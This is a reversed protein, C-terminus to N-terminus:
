NRIGLKRSPDATRELAQRDWNALTAAAEYTSQLFALLTDDPADALRVRDYPLLFERLEQSYFAEDPRVRADAFGAPEPYAYSYFVPYAIPGGGAWFGCSSVEHSYAERAVWDPLNPIGGPHEPAPRGSFRTVAMDLGGWFVHVPSCKGRFRSRFIKLVRDAQVLIRWFRFAYEPEYSCHTEDREFPIADAVENPKTHIRINLGLATLAAMLRAYFTAVSQPELPVRGIRGDSTSITLRHSLFDFEIEFTLTGYPIPSTTLGRATVYLVVHWSHNVWPTQVLRVKGVVQTWMHLTAYTDSWAELPLDPWVPLDSSM